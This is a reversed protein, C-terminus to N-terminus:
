REERVEWRWGKAAGLDEMIVDGVALGEVVTCGGFDRVACVAM